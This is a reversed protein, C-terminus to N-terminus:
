LRGEARLWRVVAGAQEEALADGRETIAQWDGENSGFGPEVLACPMATERLIYAGRDDDDCAKLGSQGRDRLGLVDDAKDLEVALARGRGSRHWYLVEAGTAAPNSFSNFHLSLACDAGTDNVKGPLRRYGDSRDDREIIVPVARAARLHLAIKRAHQRAWAWETTGDVAVAGQASERHGVILCVLAM